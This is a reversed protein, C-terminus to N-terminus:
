RAEAIEIIIDRHEACLANARARLEAELAPDDGIVSRACERDPGDGCPAM